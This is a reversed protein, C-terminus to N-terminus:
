TELGNVLYQDRVFQVFQRAAPHLQQADKYGLCIDRKIPPDLEQKLLQYQTRKLLLEPLISMGLGREVMAMVAHEDKVSYTIKAKSILNTLVAKQDCELSDVCLILPKNAMHDMSFSTNELNCSKPFIAVLRETMLFIRELKQTTPLWIFGCDIREEAIWREIEIHTGQLLEFKINPHQESFQAIMDPLLHTSASLITGIRITGVELGHLKAVQRFVEDNAKCVMRISPILRKGEETLRVGSRDRVLLKLQMEDELGTIMHSIASQTYGLEESAKTLSGLDVTKLLTEYKKIGV